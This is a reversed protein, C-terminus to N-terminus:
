KDPYGTIAQVQRYLPLLRRHMKLYVRRYIEDYIERNERAPTFVDGTRTMAAVAAEFDPFRGLGVAADIAAGLVSTENTHPRSVALGFIDATMQMISDSRSGGGTAFVETIAVKNKKESLEAGQRLAFVIGEIIARYLYARNHIDSFGIVSGRTCSPVEPGPTWYPQCVLGMSGAPVDKLLKELLEEAAVQTELAQQREQLGFEEKFWSVMWLGRVVTIESYYQGPIASPYPPLFPLLEVYKTNHTNITATTGFSICARRPTLCGAGIIDCAKDNSAAIVPLGQPIGTEEAARRTVSGLMGGPPVLEPLKDREIPFLWNKLDWRGSWDGKRLDFPIPGVINGYSDRFEGTMRHTLYGSLFLFKHTQEWIAPQNQRIWNSRCSRTAYEVVPFFRAPKLLPAAFSPLIKKADAKRADLWVIAPRLPNGGADVNVLTSRQSTLTVAAIRERCGGAALVNHCAECVMRWYYGPQQEAWGPRESFYPEIPIKVLNRIEGALDVLGARVSQTGADIALIVEGSPASGSGM